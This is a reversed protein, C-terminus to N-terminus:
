VRCGVGWVRVGWEELEIESVTAPEIELRHLLDLPIGLFYGVAALIPAAHSVVVITSKPHEDRLRLLERVMRAQVDMHSEGGPTGSGSRFENHRRWHADGELTTYDAGTWEGYDLETLGDSVRIELGLRSALPEATERARELPSSYIADPARRALADALRAAQARGEDDLHIDPARGTLVRGGVHACMGHRVLLVRM